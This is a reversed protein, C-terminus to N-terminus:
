HRPHKWRLCSHSLVRGGIKETQVPSCRWARLTGMSLSIPDFCRPTLTSALTLFSYLAPCCPCFLHSWLATSPRITADPVPLAKFSTTASFVLSVQPETNPIPQLHLTALAKEASQLNPYKVQPRLAGRNRGNKTRSFTVSAGHHSEVMDKVHQEQVHRPLNCIFLTTTHLYPHPPSPRMEVM